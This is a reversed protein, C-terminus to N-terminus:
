PVSCCIYDDDSDVKGLLRYTFSDAFVSGENKKSWAKASELIKFARHQGEGGWKAALYINTTTNTTDKHHKKHEKWGGRQCQENCYYSSSTVLGM